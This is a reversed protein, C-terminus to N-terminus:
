KTHIIQKPAVSSNGRLTLYYTGSPLNALHPDNLTVTRMGASLPSSWVERGLIDYIVVAQSSENPLNLQLTSSFPNPYASVTAARSEARRNTVADPPFGYTYIRIQENGGSGRLRYYICTFAFRESDLALISFDHAMHHLQPDLISPPHPCTGDARRNLWMLGDAFGFLVLSNGLSDVQIGPLCSQTRSAVYSERIGQLTSDLVVYASQATDAGTVLHVLGSGDLAVGHVYLGLNSGAMPHYVVQSTDDNFRVLRIGEYAGGPGAVVMGAWVHGDHPSMILSPVDCGYETGNIRRAWIVTDGEATFRSYRFASYPPTDGIWHITRDQTNM